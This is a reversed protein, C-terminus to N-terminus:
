LMLYKAYLWAPLGPKIQQLKDKGTKYDIIRVVNDKRDVRDIKGGVVAYGPAHSIKVNYLLGEQEVAEMIFPAHDKDVEMIRRALRKVVEKVVLRQGEYDM